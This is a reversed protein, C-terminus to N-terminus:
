VQRITAFIMNFAILSAALRVLYGVWTLLICFQSLDIVVDGFSGGMEITIDAPCVGSTVPLAHLEDFSSSLDVNKEFEYGNAVADSEMDFVSTLGQSSYQSDVASTIAATDAVECAQARQINLSACQIPNGRCELPADCNAVALEGAHCRTSWQQHLIACQVPDESHACSPPENCTAGGSVASVPEGSEETTITTTTCTGTDDCSTEVTTTDRTNSSIEPPPPLTAPPPGSPTLTNSPSVCTENFTPFTGVPCPVTTTYDCGYTAHPLGGNPCLDVPEPTLDFNDSCRSDAYYNDLCYDHLTQEGAIPSAGSKFPDSNNGATGEGGEGSGSGSGSDGTGTGGGAGSFSGNDADSSPDDSTDGSDGFGPPPESCAGVAYNSICGWGDPPPPGEGPPPPDGFDGPCAMGYGVSGASSWATAPCDKACGDSYQGHSCDPPPPAECEGTTPSSILGQAACDIGIYDFSNNSQEVYSGSCEPYFVGTDDYEESYCVLYYYSTGPFLNNSGCAAGGTFNPGAAASSSYCANQADFQTNYTADASTALFVFIIIFYRSMVLGLVAFFISCLYHHPRVNFSVCYFFLPATESGM